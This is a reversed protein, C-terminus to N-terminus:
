IIANSWPCESNLGQKYTDLTFIWYLERKKRIQEGGTNNPLKIKELIRWKMEESSHGFDMFHSVLPASLKKTKIASRHETLRTKIAKGTEGVYGLHCPCTILYVVNQTNCTWLDKAKIEVNNLTMTEGLLINNCSKCSGCSSTGKVPNNNQFSRQVFPPNEATKSFRSRVIQDKLNKNRRHAYMPKPIKQQTNNLNLLHWNSNIIQRISGDITSHKTICVLSPANKTRNSNLLADRDYFRARKYAERILRRPYGRQLFKIKMNESQLDYDRLETCNRRVRLFQSFPISDKQCKPHFSKFHLMTNRATPKTFLDVQLRGDGNKIFIDLFEVRDKNTHATFKLNVDAENLWLLFERLTQEGNTWVFFIDDIYRYWHSVSEFFPAMENFINKTEFAIMYINAISPAMSAGMSVGKTQLFLQEGFEFCNETLVLTLCERIFNSCCPIQYEEIFWLTTEIAGIQPINSYLSEIDLTVLIDKQPNFQLNEVKKIIDGTDKIYSPSLPIYPRLINDLYKSVAELPTGITSVIPRYPPDEQNKHVKPLGYICSMKGESKNLYEFEKKNIIGTGLAKTTIKNISKVIKNIPNLKIKKYFTPDNLMELM